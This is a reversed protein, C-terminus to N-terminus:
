KHFLNSILDMFRISERMCLSNLLGRLSGHLAVEHWFSHCYVDDVENIERMSGLPSLILFVGVYQM